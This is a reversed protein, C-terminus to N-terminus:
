GEPEPRCRTDFSRCAAFLRLRARHLRTKATAKSINLARGIEEVSSGKMLRM